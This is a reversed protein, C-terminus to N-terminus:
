VRKFNKSQLGVRPSGGELFAADTCLVQGLPKVLLSNSVFATGMLVFTPTNCFLWSM